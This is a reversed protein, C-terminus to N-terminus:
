EPSGTKKQHTSLFSPPGCSAPWSSLSNAAAIRWSGGGCLHAGRRPRGGLMAFVFLREAWSKTRSLRHAMCCRRKRMWCWSTPRRAPPSFQRASGGAGAGAGRGPHRSLVAQVRDVPHRRLQCVKYAENMTALLSLSTGGGVDTALGVNVGAKEAVALDFLGSGLFPQLDPLLRPERGVQGAAGM